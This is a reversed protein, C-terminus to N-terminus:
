PCPVVVLFMCLSKQVEISHLSLYGSLILKHKGIRFPSDDDDDYDDDDGTM